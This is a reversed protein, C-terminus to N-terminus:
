KEAAPIFEQSPLITFSPHTISARFLFYRISRMSWLKKKKTVPQIVSRLLRKKINKHLKKKEAVTFCMFFMYFVMERKELCERTMDDTHIAVM